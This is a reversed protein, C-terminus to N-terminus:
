IYLFESSGIMRGHRGWIIIYNSPTQSQQVYTMKAWPHTLNPRFRCLILDNGTTGRRSAESPTAAYNKMDKKPVRYYNTDKSGSGMKRLFFWVWFWIVITVGIRNLKWFFMTKDRRRKYSFIIGYSYLPTLNSNTFRLFAFGVIIIIIFIRM